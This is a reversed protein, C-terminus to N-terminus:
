GVSEVAKIIAAVTDNHKEAKPTIANFRKMLSDAAKIRDAISVELGFQDKVEGRVVASYFLMVEDATMARKSELEAMRINIYEIIEPKQLNENGIAGATKLSYGAKRAAESANGTEIYYDAFAKQKPTLNM